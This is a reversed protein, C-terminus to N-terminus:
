NSEIIVNFYSDTYPTFVVKITADQSQAYNTFTIVRKDSDSSGDLKVTQRAFSFM